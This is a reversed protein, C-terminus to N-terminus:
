AGTLLVSKRERRRRIMFAAAVLLALHSSSRPAGAPVRCGCGGVRPGTGGGDGGDRDGTVDRIGADRSGGDVAGADPMAVSPLVEIIAELQDDPPGGQGPDSFWAVGDELMGFHEDYRGPALSAPASWTWQFRYTGGPPVTMGAPVSAPRNPGVWDPAVFVSSRDRAVTTGIRTNGDWAVTGTNRMELWASATEGARVQVTGVSAYPFSQMVFQGGWMPGGGNAFNRLDALTGAFVNRDVSPSSAVGPVPTNRAPCGACTGDSYQWFQWDSWGVPTNVCGTVYGSVWLPNGGFAVADNYYTGGDWFWAGTYIMPTKGTDAAVRDILARLVSAATAPSACGPGSSTCVGASVPCMCEVDITVPLDGAGLRGVAAAILDAQATASVTPRFFLYAGRIMGAARIGDWNRAFTSDHYTGDGMRAIAFERGSAHVMNWDIAGQFESVDLGEVTTTHCVRIGDVRQGTDDPQMCGACTMGMAALVFLLIVPHRHVITM